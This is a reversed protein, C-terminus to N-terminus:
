PPSPRLLPYDLWAADEGPMKAPFHCNRDPSAEFLPTM